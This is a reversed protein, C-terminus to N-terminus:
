VSFVLTSFQESKSPAPPLGNPFELAACSGSLIDKGAQLARNRTTPTSENRGDVFSDPPGKELKKRKSGPEDDSTPEEEEVYDKDEDLGQERGIGSLEKDEYGAAVKPAVLKGLYRLEDDEDDDDGDFGVDLARRKPVRKSKRVSEHMDNMFATDGYSKGRLSHAKGFSSGSRSFDKRRIADGKEKDSPFSYDSHKDQM